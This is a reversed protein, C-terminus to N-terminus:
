HVSPDRARGTEAEPGPRWDALGPASRVHLDRQPFAIEIDHERFLDDIRTHVDHTAAVWVDRTPIYIRLEFNLTSEGFARFVVHPPPDDLVHECERGARMLLESAKRTDSGYAVGVPIVIRSVPDSLTWNVLQGTIFERNPVLLERRDWDQITTARMRLRTVRGEMGGVTVIDGVQFPREFLIILGSVFNAFVEQLGFALGFTLAAALWQIQTWGIHLAAMASTAGFLLILYRVVSSIAYRAGADLPLRQLLLFELLSPLNRAAAFMVLLIVLALGVDALTVATAAGAEADGGAEAAADRLALLPNAAPTKPAAQAAEGTAFRPAGPPEAKAAYDADVVRMEPWVQVRDLVRLAPLVASWILVFGFVSALFTATRFLQRTQQDLAPIDVKDEEIPAVEGVSGDPNEARSRARARAHEISLRRRVVFLWRLMVAHALVIGLAYGLSDELREELQVATYHWGLASLGILFLPMGIAAPYWLRYLRQVWGGEARQRVEGALEGGPKLVRRLLVFLFALAVCFAIRGASHTWAREPQQELAIAITALPALTPLFWRLHVRTPGIAREPWRFHAVGLGGKAVVRRLFALPLLLRGTGQLGLGLARVNDLQEPPRTLFWGVAWFFLPVFSAILLTLALARLTLVFSDTRFSAVREGIWSLRKRGLRRISFLLAVLSAIGIPELPRAGADVLAIALGEALRTPEFLWALAEVTRRGNPLRDPYVSRLWLIHEEIFTRATDVTTRLARTAEELEWTLELKKRTDRLLVDLLDRRAELQSRLAAEARERAADDAGDLQDALESALRQFSAGPDSWRASLERVEIWRYHAESAESALSAARSLVESTSPLSEYRTRLDVAVQESRGGVAVKERLTRLDDGLAEARRREVEVAAELDELQPAVEEAHERAFAQNEATIREVLEVSTSARLADAGRAIRDAEGRRQVAAEDRLGAVLADAAGLRRQAEDRRLPLLEARAQYSALEMEQARLDQARREVRAFLRARRVRAALADGSPFARAEARAEALRGQTTAIEGALEGQRTSRRTLEAVLADVEARAADREAEARRLRDEIARTDTPGDLGLDVAPPPRSLTERLAQIRGPASDALAEFEDGRARLENAADLDQAAEDLVAALSAAEAPELSAVEARLAELAARDVAADQVPAFLLLLFSTWLLLM